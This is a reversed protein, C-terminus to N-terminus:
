PLVEFGAAGSIVGPTDGGGAAGGRIGDVAKKPVWKLKIVSPSFTPPNLLFSDPSESESVAIRPARASHATRIDDRNRLHHKRVRNNKVIKLLEATARPFSRNRSKPFL